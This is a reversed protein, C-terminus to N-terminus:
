RQIPKPLDHGIGGDEIMSEQKYPPAYNTWIWETVIDGSTTRTRTTDTYWGSLYRRYLPTDYGSLIIKARSRTIAALLAIQGADDMEHAYLKGSKRGNGGM